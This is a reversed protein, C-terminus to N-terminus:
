LSHQLKRSREYRLVGCAKKLSAGLRAGAEPVEVRLGHPGDDVQVAVAPVVHGIVHVLVGEAFVEGGPYPGLAGFSEEPTSEALFTTIASARHEQLRKSDPPSFLLM